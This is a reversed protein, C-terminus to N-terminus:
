LKSRPGALAAAATVLGTKLAVEPFWNYTRCFADGRGVLITAPRDEVTRLNPSQGVATGVIAAIEPLAHATSGGLNFVSSGVKSPARCVSELARVADSIFLPNTRIGIGAALILEQGNQVRDIIGPIFGKKQGPGYLGFIRLSVCDFYAGYQRVLHEASLKSAAYMSAPECPSEETLEANSPRYVNGTSAFVFRSVGHTRSWELLEGTSDINVAIMDSSGHPFDHYRASQALHVVIDAHEPLSASWGRQSLDARIVPVTADGSHRVSTRAVGVLGDQPTAAQLVAAGLFGHAGTILVKSM